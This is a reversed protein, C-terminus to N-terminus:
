DAAVAVAGPAAPAPRLVKPAMGAHTMDIFSKKM